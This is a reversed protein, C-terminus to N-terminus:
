HSACSDDPFEGLVEIALKGNSRVLQAGLDGEADTVVAHCTPATDGAVTRRSDATWSAKGAGDGEVSFDGTEPVGGFDFTAAWSYAIRHESIQHGQSTELVTRGSGNAVMVTIELDIGTQAPSGQAGLTLAVACAVAVLGLGRRPTM